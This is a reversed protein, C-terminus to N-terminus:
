CQSQLAIFHGTTACSQIKGANALVNSEVRGLSSPLTIFEIPLLSHETFNIPSISLTVFYALSHMILPTKNKSQTLLTVLPTPLYPSDFMALQDDFNPTGFDSLRRYFTEVHFCIQDLTTRARQKVTIDEASQPLYNEFFSSTGSPTPVVPRNRSRRLILFGDSPRHHRRRSRSRRKRRMFLFTLLFTILASGTAAGVVIGAVTNNSLSHGATSQYDHGPLVSKTSASLSRLRESSLSTRAVVQDPSDGSSVISSSSTLSSISSTHEPGTTGSAVNTLATTLATFQSQRKLLCRIWQEM